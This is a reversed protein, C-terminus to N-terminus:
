LFAPAFSRTISCVNPVSEIAVSTWSPVCTTTSDRTAESRKWESM